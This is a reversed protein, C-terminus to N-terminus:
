DEGKVFEYTGDAYSKIKWGNKRDVLIKYGYKKLWKKNIRKKKHKRRQVPKTLLFGIQDQSKSSDVGLVNFLNEKDIIDTTFSLTTGGRKINGVSGFSDVEEITNSNLELENVNNLALVNNGNKDQFFLMGTKM